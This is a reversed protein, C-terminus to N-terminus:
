PDPEESTPLPRVDAVYVTKASGDKEVWYPNDSQEFRFKLRKAEFLTCSTLKADAPDFLVINYGKEKWTAPLFDAHRRHM